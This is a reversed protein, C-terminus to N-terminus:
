LPRVSTTRKGLARMGAMRKEIGHGKDNEAKLRDRTEKLIGQIVPNRAVEAADKKPLYEALAVINQYMAKEGVSVVQPLNAKGGGVPSTRAIEMMLQIAVQSLVKNAIADRDEYGSIGTLIPMTMDLIVKVDKPSAMVTETIVRATENLAERREASDDMLHMIGVKKSKPSRITQSPKIYEHFKERLTERFSPTQPATDM